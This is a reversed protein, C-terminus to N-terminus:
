RGGKAAAAQTSANVFKILAMDEQKIHLRLWDALFSSLTISLVARGASFKEKLEKVQDTLAAHKAKHADRDPYGVRDMLAEEAQFHDITYQALRDLTPGLSEKGKNAVIADHLSNVLRFLEQHQRDVTRHGTKYSDDWNAVSMLIAEVIRGLNPM